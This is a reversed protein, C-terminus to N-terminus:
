LALIFNYITSSHMLATQLLMYDLASTGGSSDVTHIYAGQPLPALTSSWIDLAIYRAHMMSAIRM